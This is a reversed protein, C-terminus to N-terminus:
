PIEEQLLCPLSYSPSVALIQECCENCPHLNPRSCRVSVLLMQPPQAAQCQQHLENPTRLAEASRHRGGWPDPRCPPPSLHAPHLVCSRSNQHLSSTRGEVSAATDRRRTQRATQRPPTHGVALGGETGSPAVAVHPPAGGRSHSGPISPVLASTHCPLHWGLPSSCMYKQATYLAALAMLSNRSRKRFIM